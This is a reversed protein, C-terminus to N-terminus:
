MKMMEEHRALMRQMRGIHARMRTELAAGSLGPL